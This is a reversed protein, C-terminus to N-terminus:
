EWAVAPEGRGPEGAHVPRLPEFDLRRCLDIGDPFAIVGVDITETGQLGLVCERGAPGAAADLHSIGHDPAGHHRERGIYPEVGVVVEGAVVRRQQQRRLKHLTPRRTGRSTDAVIDRATRLDKDTAFDAAEAAM